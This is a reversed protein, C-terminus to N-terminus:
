AAVVMPQEEVFPIEISRLLPHWSPDRAPNLHTGAPCTVLMTRWPADTKSWCLWMPRGSAYRSMIHYELATEDDYTPLAIRITGSRPRARLGRGMWGYSSASVPYQVDTGQDEMPFRVVYKSPQWSKGIWVGTLQPKLGTGMAKSTLRWGNAADAGFTKLWAGESTVAGVSGAPTGGAVSPLPNIDFITRYTTFSDDSALLQYRYGLHNGGRDIVVTDAARLIDCLVQVYADANTSSPEWREIANRRENAVKDVSYGSAESSASVTASPFQVDSLLNETLLLLQEAM